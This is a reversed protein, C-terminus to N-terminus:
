AVKQAVRPRVILFQKALGEADSLANHPMPVHVEPVEIGLWRAQKTFCIQGEFVFMEKLYYQLYWIIWPYDMWDTDSVFVWPKPFNNLWQRYNWIAVEPLHMETELSQRARPWQKWWNITDPDDEFHPAVNIYFKDLVRENNCAVSGISRLSHVGTLPGDCEIDTVFYTM